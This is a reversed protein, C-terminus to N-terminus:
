KKYLPIRYMIGYSYGAGVNGNDYTRGYGPVYLNDFNDPMDETIMRRLQINLVMYLNNLVEVKIGAHLELWIANLGSSEQNTFVDRSPLYSNDSNYRYRKLTQSMNAYGLRAGAYIMNDMQLWNDYFNYDLGGKIFSGSTEFDIREYSEEFKENGLEAAFYIDDTFRYDGLIQFGTYRDDIATRALSAVDVGIRLGYKKQTRLTDIPQEANQQANCLSFGSLILLSIFFRLMCKM